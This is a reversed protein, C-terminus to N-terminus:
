GMKDDEGDESDDDDDIKTFIKKYGDQFNFYQDKEKKSITENRKKTKKNVPNKKDKARFGFETM